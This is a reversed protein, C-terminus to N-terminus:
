APVEEKERTEPLIEIIPGDLNPWQKWIRGDLECGATKGQYYRMPANPEGAALEHREVSWPKHSAEGIEWSHHHALPNYFHTAGIKEAEAKAAALLVPDGLVTAPVRVVWPAPGWSGWQKFFLAVGAAVAQDRLWRAWIPHMPRARDKAASEGGVIVWDLRAGDATFPTEREGVKAIGTLANLRVGGGVDLDTLAIPSLLPECSVLRIAAPTRFLWTLRVEAQHQDETSVGLWVNTLVGFRAAMKTVMDHMRKPLKTLIVYIHHPTDAMTQWLDVIFDEDVQPDFLEGLATVFIMRPKTLARLGPLREPYTEVKGTWVTRGQDDKTVIGGRGPLHAQRAVWRPAFCERCGASRHVCGLVVNATMPLFGPQGLWGILSRDSM